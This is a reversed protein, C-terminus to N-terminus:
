VGESSELVCLCLCLRWNIYHKLLILMLGQLCSWCVPQLNRKSCLPFPLLSFYINSSLSFPLHPCEESVMGGRQSDKQGGQREKGWKLKWWEPHLLWRQLRQRAGRGEKKRSMKVRRERWEEEKLRQVSWCVLKMKGDEVGWPIHEDVGQAAIINREPRSKKHSHFSCCFYNECLKKLISSSTDPLKRKEAEAICIICRHIVHTHTRVCTHARKCFFCLSSSLLIFVQLCRHSLVEQQLLWYDLAWM